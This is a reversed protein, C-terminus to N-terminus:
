RITLANIPITTWQPPTWNAMPPTGQLFSIFGFVLFVLFVLYVLSVGYTNPKQMLLIGGWLPKFSTVRILKTQETKRTHPHNNAM